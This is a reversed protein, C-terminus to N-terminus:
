SSCVLPGFNYRVRSAYYSCAHSAEGLAAADEIDSPQALTHLGLAAIAETSTLLPCSSTKDKKLDLCMDNIAQESRGSRNVSTNGCLVQRGGLAVVRVDAYATRRLEGVFQTLQSHTRAAYVIKRVGSGPQVDGVAAKGHVASSGDLAAGDLLPLLSYNVVPAVNEQDWDLRDHQDEQDSRYGTVCYDVPVDEQNRKTKKNSRQQRQRLKAATVASRVLNGRRERINNKDVLKLRIVRLERLLAERAAHARERVVKEEHQQEREDPAVWDGLWDDSETTIPTQEKNSKYGLDTEEQYRLWAMASCALSLSKGTGTPSELLMVKSTTNLSSLLADMLDTQQTYPHEYPFPVNRGTPYDRNSANSSM